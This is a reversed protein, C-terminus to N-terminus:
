SWAQPLKLLSCSPMRSLWRRRCGISAAGSRHQDRTALPRHQAEQQCQVRAPDDSANRRSIRDAKRAWVVRCSRRWVESRRGLRDQAARGAVRRDLPKCREAPFDSAARAAEGRDARGSGDLPQISVTIRSLGFNGNDARGPGRKTMSDDALAELRLAQSTRCAPKPKLPTYTSTQMREASWTRAM